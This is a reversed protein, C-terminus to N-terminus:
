DGSTKGRMEAFEKLLASFAGSQGVTISTTRIAAVLKDTFAMEQRLLQTLHYVDQKLCFVDNTLTEYERRLGSLIYEADSSM